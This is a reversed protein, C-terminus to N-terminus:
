IGGYAMYHTTRTDDNREHVTADFVAQAYNAGYSQSMSPDFWMATKMAFLNSLTGALIGEYWTDMIRDDAESSTRKPIVVYEVEVTASPPLDTLITVTGENSRFKVESGSFTVRNVSFVREFANAHEIVLTNTDATEHTTHTCVKTRKAFDIVVNRVTRIISPDTVGGILPIIEGTLDTYEM